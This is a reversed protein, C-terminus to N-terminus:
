IIVYDVDLEAVRAQNAVQEVVNDLMGQIV